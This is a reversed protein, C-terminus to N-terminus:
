DAQERSKAAARKVRLRYVVFTATFYVVVQAWLAIYEQRIDGLPAGMVNIRVFGRIGFTSPFLCAIARWAVPMDAQPWSIGSLFLLPVSTFVVLLMANERYRVLFSFTMGFFITALLYPMLLGILAQAEALQVFGFLRPIALSIYAGMVAYIMFYCLAKGFVLDALGYGHRNGTAFRALSGREKETGASLAIGLLLTQHIILMLVGPIIFDAYGGASNFLPVEDFDLPKTTVQDDRNTLNGARSIQIKSNMAQAVATASQYIAKYYLMVGMDCYVSVTSQEDRKVNRQFDTPIYVVGRVVQRGILAKAEALNDCFYAVKVDPTANYHSIFAQSLSSQSRDIVAVPTENVVQNNYIWSYLLPYLLPVIIFFIIMGEDKAISRMEDAWVQCTNTISRKMGM